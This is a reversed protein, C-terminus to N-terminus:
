RLMPRVDETRGDLFHHKLVAGLHVFLAVAFAAPLFWNHLANWPPATDAGALRPVPLGFVTLDGDARDLLLGTIPM